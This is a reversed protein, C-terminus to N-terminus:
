VVPRLQRVAKIIVSTLAFVTRTRPPEATSETPLCRQPEESLVPVGSMVISLRWARELWKSGRLYKPKLKELQTLERDLVSFLSLLRLMRDMYLCRPHNKDSNFAQTKTKTWSIELGLQSSEECLIWSCSGRSRAYIHQGSAICRWRCRPWHLDWRGCYRNSCALRQSCHPEHGLGNAGPLPWSSFCLRSASMRIFRVM